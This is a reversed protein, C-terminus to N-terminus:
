SNKLKDIETKIEAIEKEINDIESAEDTQQKAFSLLQTQKDLRKRM